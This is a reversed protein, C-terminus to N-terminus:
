KDEDGMPPYLGLLVFAGSFHGLDFTPGSYRIGSSARDRETHPLVLCSSPFSHETGSVTCYSGRVVPDCLGSRKHVVAPVTTVATSDGQQASLVVIVNQDVGGAEKWPTTCTLDFLRAGAVIYGANRELLVAVQGGSGVRFHAIIAALHRTNCPCQVSRLTDDSSSKPM